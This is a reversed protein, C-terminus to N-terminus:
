DQNQDIIETSSHWSLIQLVHKLLSAGHELSKCHFNTFSVQVDGKRTVCEWDIHKMANSFNIIGM